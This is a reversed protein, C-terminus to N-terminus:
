VSGLVLHELHGERQLKRRLSRLPHALTVEEERYSLIILLPYQYISHALLELFAITPACSWHMDELILLIPRDSTLDQLIDLFITLTDNNIHYYEPAYQNPPLNNKSYLGNGFILNPATSLSINKPLIALNATLSYFVETLAQFPVPEGATTHGKSVIAGMGQVYASFVDILHTKGVRTTGGILLLKGQRQNVCNWLEQLYKFEKDRRTLPTQYIQGSKSDLHRELYYVQDPSIMSDQKIATYITTTDPMPDVDLKSRLFSVFQEFTVLAQSRDGITYQLLMLRRVMDERFPNIALIEHIRDISRHYEGKAELEFVLRNLIQIYLARFHNRAPEISDERINGLLDGTYVAVAEENKNDAYLDMFDDIDLRFESDNNWQVTDSDILLWPKKRVPLAHQLHYLHRRLNARASHEAVDPWLTFALASRKIPKTRELLIHALLPITKPPAILEIADSDITIRLNDFLYINLM